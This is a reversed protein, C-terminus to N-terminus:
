APADLSALRRRVDEAGVVNGKAEYLERARAFADSAPPGEGATRLVEGLDVLTDARMNLDDTEEALAVSERALLAAEATRGRAALARARAGRWMVQTALDDEAGIDESVTALEEAEDLKGLVVLTHALEAAMTAQHGREGMRVLADYGARLHVEAAEHEGALTEIYGFTEIIFAERLRLGLEDLLDRARAALLRAEDFRGEMARISALGRLARAEVVGIGASQALIRECRQAVESAPAPGYLGTGTYQGLLFAEEAAAGARRAHELALEFEEEAAAYRSHTWHIDAILRHGRSLGLDDGLIELERILQRVETIATSRRKPDTSEMVLYRIIIAQARAGRDGAREALGVAEDLIAEARELEGAESLAEGLDPLLIRREAHDTPFLAAARSLLEAAAGLDGRNAARKGAATMHRAGEVALGEVTDARGLEARYRFAQELHYGIFEEVETMRPGAAREVWGAFREHLDARLEKPTGAYAADRILIHHFRFADEGSIDSREPRILDKRVLTQLHGGVHPRVEPPALEEVSGWWFVKGVVSACRIVALEEASLRDLRAGLLAHISAPVAVNSLDGAVVWRGDERRLLGDDELMRLMEEVFLPNGGASDTIREVAPEGLRMGDLLGAILEASEEDRLPELHLSSANDTGGGWAPREDTLDPRALCLLLLAVERCWGALYELLDLFTPEAWQIDDVIVVLPRSRGLWELFRRIAWFTEQLGTTADGFGTVAAVREAILPGDDAGELADEIKARAEEPSDDNTIGCAQRVLEGVPWFTIGDGYSPCRAVLVTARDAVGAVFERALRSKGVGASGLITLLECARGKAVREFASRITALEEGRGVLPPDPRAGVSAPGTEVALLRHATVPARLGKLELSETAEAEVLDRVLAFTEPGLLVDGPRATQELRAALIVADGVVLAQGAAPDGVVVEGTNVGIRIRLEVGWREGLEVNLDRVAERMDAAARVARLADDEHLLPVGFVAMVADGIFKEVTGGHRELVSRMVRFFKTMVERTSELDLRETIPTSDAVDCFVITVVKRAGHPAPGEAPLPSACSMCFRARAPNSQGCAACVPM